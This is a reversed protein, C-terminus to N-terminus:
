ECDDEYCATYGAAWARHQPTGYPYPNDALAVRDGGLYAKQGETYAPVSEAKFDNEIHM